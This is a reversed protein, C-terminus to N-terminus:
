SIPRRSPGRVPSAPLSRFLSTPLGVDRLSAAIDLRAVSGFVFCAGFVMGTGKRQFPVVVLWGRGLPFVFSACGGGILRALFVFIRIIRGLGECGLEFRWDFAGFFCFDKYDKGIRRM